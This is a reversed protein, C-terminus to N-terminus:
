FPGATGSDEKSVLCVVGIGDDTVYCPEEQQQLCWGRRMELYRICSARDPANRIVRRRQGPGGLRPNRAPPKGMQDVADTVLASVYTCLTTRELSAWRELKAYTLDSLAIRITKIHHGPSLFPLLIWAGMIGLTSLIGHWLPDLLM